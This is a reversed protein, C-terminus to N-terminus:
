GYCSKKSPKHSQKALKQQYKHTSYDKRIQGNEYKPKRSCESQPWTPKTASCSPSPKKQRITESSNSGVKWIIWHKRGPCILLLFQVILMGWIHPYWVRISKKGLQIGSSCDILVTILHWIGPSFISVLLLSCINDIISVNNSAEFEDKVFREIISTKGVGMDGLFVFKFKIDCM